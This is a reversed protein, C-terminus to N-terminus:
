RFNEILMLDAGENVVKNYLITTGDPSVALGMPALTYKELRGLLRDRGTRLDTLHVAPAANSGCEVYFISQPGSAFASAKVCHALQRPPGGGLPMMLLPAESFRPQYLVSKGDVAEIGWADAGERTVREPTGGNASVRWLDVDASFYIRRGDSSWATNTENGLGNTIQRPLGGDADITWVHWHGDANQSDFAIRRGDPAWHPSGQWRGPGHTLQRAGSGDAAAVWIESAEGSRTTGFALHRGDPSFQGQFDAFSSAVVPEPSRGQQLRYVDVDVFSRTFALRGQAGSTVPDMAGLGAVEIREPPRNAGVTVRWLYALGAVPQGGYVIFRGDSTWRLGRLVFPQSWMQRRPPGTPQDDADLDIVNLECGGAGPCSVYALRRGDPSFAAEEDYAPAKTQTVARPDGGDTPIFYIGSSLTTRTPDWRAVAIMKGDPSWAIQDNTPLDSLKSDSGGLASMLHVRGVIANQQRRLFAIQRGNPSWTPKEDLAPDNTLQRVESSGVFKVYIDSTGSAGGDWSFAVQNGDPSFTPEGENGNLATLPVVRIQATESEPQRWRWWAATLGAALLASAALAGLLPVRRKNPVTAAPTGSESEEKIEQLAVRVDSIHQFRRNPDKRLCRLITKQLDSPATPVIESPPKPQARVVAALTDALNAEAFARVGTVMEYLM